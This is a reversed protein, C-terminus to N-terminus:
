SQIISSSQKWMYTLLLKVVNLLEVLIKKKISEQYQSITVHKERLLLIDTKQMFNNDAACGIRM